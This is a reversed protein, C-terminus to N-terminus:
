TVRHQVNKMSHNFSPSHVLLVVTIELRSGWLDFTFSVLSSSFFLSLRASAAPM